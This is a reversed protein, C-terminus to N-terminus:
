SFLLSVFQIIIQRHEPLLPRKLSKELCRIIADVAQDSHDKDLNFAEAGERSNQNVICTIIGRDEDLIFVIPLQSKQAPRSGTKENTITLDISLRPLERM